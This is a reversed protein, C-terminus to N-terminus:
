LFYYDQHFLDDFYKYTLHQLCRKHYDLTQKHLISKLIPGVFLYKM